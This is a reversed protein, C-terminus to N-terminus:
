AEWAVAVAHGVGSEFGDAALAHGREVEGDLFVAVADGARPVNV